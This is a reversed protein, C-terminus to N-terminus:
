DLKELKNKLVQIEDFIRHSSRLISSSDLIFINKNKGAKTKSIVNSAEFIQEPNNLSMAGAIFDPNEKLIYEPSLIPRSGILSSAINKVGLYNLVDGPLSDDSFSTMPSVSFVIAGKIEKKREERFKKIDEMKKLSENRLKKANEVKGSIIGSIEILDLIQQLSSATSIIVKYGMDKIKEVNKLMMANAIILDPKYEVLKEFNMNNINGISELKEVEEVPYIKSKQTKAIAVIKDNGKIEFLIEIVGPDTVLIKNYEKAEIKNGYNDIIYEGDTSISFSFVSIFLFFLLSYLKQM